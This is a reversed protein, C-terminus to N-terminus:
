YNKPGSGTVSIVTKQLFTLSSTLCPCNMTMEIKQLFLLSRDGSVLWIQETEAIDGYNILIFTRHVNSVLVMQFSVVKLIGVSTMLFGESKV